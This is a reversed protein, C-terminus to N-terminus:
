DYGKSLSALPFGHRFLNDPDWKKKLELLLSTKHGFSYRALHQDDPGLDTAYSGLSKPLLQEVVQMVWTKCALAETAFSDDQSQWVGSIVVSWEAERALFASDKQDSVAGGMHQLHFYCHQTPASSISEILETHIEAEKHFFLARVFFGRKSLFGEHVIGEPQECLYPEHEMLESIDQQERFIEWLLAPRTPLEVDPAGSGFDFTYIGMLINATPNGSSYATKDKFYLCCDASCDMPLKSSWAMYDRLCGARSPPEGIEFVKRVTNCHRFPAAQLTISTVVGFNPACGRLAWHLDTLSEEQGVQSLKETWPRDKQKGQEKEERENTQSVDLVEGTATVLQVSRIADIALGLQRTLHGVGGQLVLGLGVTPATGLPVVLGLQKAQISLDQLKVGAGISLLASERSADTAAVAAIDAMRVSTFYCMELVLDGSKGFGSHNGGVVSISCGTAGAARVCIQVDEVSKPKAIVQNGHLSGLNLAELESFLLTVRESGM